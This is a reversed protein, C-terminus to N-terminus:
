FHATFLLLPRRLGFIRCIPFQASFLLGRGTFQAAFLLMALFLFNRSNHQLYCGSIQPCKQFQAASLLQGMGGCFLLNHASYCYSKQGGGVRARYVTGGIVIGLGTFHTTQELGFNQSNHARYCYGAGSEGCFNHRRYCYWGSGAARGSNCFHASFLLGCARGCCIKRQRPPTTANRM